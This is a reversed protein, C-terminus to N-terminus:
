SRCARAPPGPGFVSDHANATSAAPRRTSRSAPVNWRFVQLIQTSPRMTCPSYPMAGARNSAPKVISVSMDLYPSTSQRFLEFQFQLLWARCRM